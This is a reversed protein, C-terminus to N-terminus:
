RVGNKSQLYKISQKLEKALKEEADNMIIEVAQWAHQKIPVGQELVPLRRSTVRRFVGEHGSRMQALFGGEEYRRSVTYGSGTPRGVGFRRLNMQYVGAWMRAAVGEKSANSVRIRTRLARLTIQVRESESLEGQLNRTFRSVVWRLTRNEAMRLAQQLQKPELGTLEMLRGPDYYGSQDDLLALAKRSSIGIAAIAM